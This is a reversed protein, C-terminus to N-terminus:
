CWPTLNEISRLKLHTYKLVLTFLEKIQLKLLINISADFYLSFYPLSKLSPSFLKRAHFTSFSTHQIKENLKWRKYVCVHTRQMNKKQKENCVCYLKSATKNNRQICEFTYISIKRHLCWCSTSPSAVGEGKSQIPNTPSQLNRFLDLDIVSHYSRLSRLSYLKKLSTTFFIMM